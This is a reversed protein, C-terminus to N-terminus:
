DLKTLYKSNNNLDRHSLPALIGVGRAELGEQHSKRDIGILQLGGIVRSFSCELGELVVDSSEVILLVQLVTLHCYHLLPLEGFSVLWPLDAFGIQHVYNPGGVVILSARATSTFDTDKIVILANGTGEWDFLIVDTDEWLINDILLQLQRMESFAASCCLRRAM